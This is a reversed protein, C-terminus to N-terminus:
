MRIVTFLGTAAQEIYPVEFRETIEAMGVCSIGYDALGPFQPSAPSVAEYGVLPSYCVNQYRSSQTFGASFARHLLPTGLM